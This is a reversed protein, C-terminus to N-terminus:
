GSVCYYGKSIKKIVGLKALRELSRYVNAQALRRASEDLGLKEMVYGVVEASKVCKRAYVYNKVLVIYSVRKSM